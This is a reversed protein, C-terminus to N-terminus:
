EDVDETEEMERLRDTTIDLFNDPLPISKRPFYPVVRFAGVPRHYVAGNLECVIYAGGRNRSIVIYPGNYRPSMKSNLSAEVQTNRMLVLDGTQFDFDQM